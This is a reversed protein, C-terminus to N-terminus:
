GIGSRAWGRQRTRRTRDGLRLHGHAGADHRAPVGFAASTEVLLTGLNPAHFTTRATTWAATMRSGFEASYADLDDLPHIEARIYDFVGRLHARELASWDGGFASWDLLTDDLDFLIGRLTM